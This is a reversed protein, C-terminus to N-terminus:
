ADLATALGGKAYRGKLVEDPVNSFLEYSIEEPTQGRLMRAVAEETTLARGLTNPGFARLIGTGGRESATKVTPVSLARLDKLDFPGLGQTPPGYAGALQAERLLLYGAMEDDTLDALSQPRMGQLKSGFKKPLLDALYSDELSVDDIPMRFSQTSFPSIGRVKEENIPAITGFDGHGFYHSLANRIRRPINVNTLTNATVGFEGGPAKSMDFGLQYLNTGPSKYGKWTPNNAGVNQANITFIPADYFTGDINEGARIRKRLAELQGADISRLKDAIQKWMPGTENYDYTDEDIDKKFTLTPDRGTYERQPDPKKSEPHLVLDFEGTDFSSRTLNKTVPANSRASIVSARVPEGRPTTGFVGKDSAIKAMEGHTKGRLLDRIEFAQAGPRAAAAKHVDAVGTLLDKFTLGKPIPPAM